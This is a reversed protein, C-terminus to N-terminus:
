SMWLKWLRNLLVVIDPSLNLSHTNNQKNQRGGGVMTEIPSGYSWTDGGNMFVDLLM